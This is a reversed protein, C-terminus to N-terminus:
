LLQVTFSIKRCQQSKRSLARHTMCNKVQPKKENKMDEVDGSGMKKM